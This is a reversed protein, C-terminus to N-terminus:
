AGNPRADAPNKTAHKGLPCSATRVVDLFRRVSICGPSVTLCYPRADPLTRFQSCRSCVQAADSDKLDEPWKPPGASISVPVFQIKNGLCLQCRGYSPYQAKGAKCRGGGIIQADEWHPCDPPGTTTM